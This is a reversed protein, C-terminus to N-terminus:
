APRQAMFGACRGAGDAAEACGGFGRLESVFKRKHRLTERVPEITQTAPTFQDDFATTSKM